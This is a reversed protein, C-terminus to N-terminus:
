YDCICYIKRHHSQHANKKSLFTIFRLFDANDSNARKFIGDLELAGSSSPFNRTPISGDYIMEILKHPKKKYLNASKLTVLYKTYDIEM